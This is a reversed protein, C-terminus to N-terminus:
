AGFECVGRLGAHGSYTSSDGGGTRSYYNSGTSRVGVCRLSGVIRYRRGCSKRYRSSKESVAAKVRVGFRRTALEFMEREGDQGDELCANSGYLSRGRVLGGM